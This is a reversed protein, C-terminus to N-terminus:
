NNIRDTLEMQGENFWKEEVWQGFDLKYFPQNYYLNVEEVIAKMGVLRPRLDVIEVSGDKLTSKRL